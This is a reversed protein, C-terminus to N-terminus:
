RATDSRAGADRARRIATPIVPPPPRAAQKCSESEPVVIQQRSRDGIEADALLLPDRHRPGQDASRLQDDGVLRGGRQVLTRALAKELEQERLAVLRTRRKQERAMVRPEAYIEVPPDRERLEVPGFDTIAIRGGSDARHSANTIPQRLCTRLILSNLQVTATPRNPARCVHLDSHRLTM